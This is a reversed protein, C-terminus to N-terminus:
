LGAVRPMEEQRGRGHEEASSLLSQMMEAQLLALFVLQPRSQSGPANATRAPLRSPWPKNKKKLLLNLVSCLLFTSDM